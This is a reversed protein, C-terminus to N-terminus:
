KKTEEILEYMKELADKLGGMENILGSEVAKEAFLISGVDNAIEDTALMLKKFENHNINSNSVVFEIIRDQM